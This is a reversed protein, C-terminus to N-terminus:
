KAKGLHRKLNVVKKVYKYSVQISDKTVCRKLHKTKKGLANKKDTLLQLEKYIRSILGKDCTYIAFIKEHDTTQM